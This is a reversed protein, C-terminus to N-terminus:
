IDNWNMRNNADNVWNYSPKPTKWDGYAQELFKEVNGPVKWLEGKYPLTGWNEKKLLEEDYVLCDSGRLNYVGKGHKFYIPQLECDRFYLLGHPAAHEGEHRFKYKSDYRLSNFKAETLDDGIVAFEMVREGVFLKHERYIGLVVSQNLIFDLELEKFYGKWRQMIEELEKIQMAKYRKYNDVYINYAM